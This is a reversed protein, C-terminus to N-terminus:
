MLKTPSTNRLEWSIMSNSLNAYIKMFNQLIRIFTITLLYKKQLLNLNIAISKNTYLILLESYIIIIKIKIIIIIPILLKNFKKINVNAKRVILKM